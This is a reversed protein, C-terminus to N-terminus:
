EKRTPGDLISVRPVSVRKRGWGEEGIGSTPEGFDVVERWVRDIGLAPALRGGASGRLNTGTKNESNGFNSVGATEAMVDARNLRATVDRPQGPSYSVVSRSMM